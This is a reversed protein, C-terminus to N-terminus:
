SPDEVVFEYLLASATVLILDFGFLFWIEAPREGALVKSSALVAVILLPIIVPYFIVPLLLDRLRTQSLMTAFLTGVAAYGITGLALVSLFLPLQAGFSFDFFIVFLPLVILEIAAIFLLASIFKSWFITSGGIGTLLIGEQAREDSDRGSLHSLALTGSFAIVVWLIGPALWAVQEADARFSFNFIFLVLIVFLLTSFFTEKSRLELRIDKETLTLVNTLFSRVPGKGERPRDRSRGM